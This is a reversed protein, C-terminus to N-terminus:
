QGKKAMEVLMDSYISVQEQYEQQTVKEPYGEPISARWSPKHTGMSMQHMQSLLGLLLRWAVEPFEKGIAEIAVKRKEVSGKTQPFWPLFITRLSSAPRNSWTGGPDHMALEGLTLTVRVLYQEEWALCELAWLLGTLYNRGTFADGEQSFLIDFPCPSMSLADEVAKLFEEPAAEALFPLLYDLSGWLEWDANDLIERVSLLTIVGPKDLSCHSLTGPTNGLIALSEALGRRLHNSHKMVKGHISAAFREGPVLKFQPDREKLVTVISQKFRDLHDDFIRQGLTQWLEKRKAVSWIGNKLSLPSESQLLVERIKTIWDYYDEKVLQSIIERDAKNNEDWSGLLNTMALESAFSSNQWYKETSVDPIPVFESPITEPAQKRFVTKIEDPITEMTLYSANEDIGEVLVVIQAWVQNANEASYQGILSHLLSLTIGKIDLDYILLHFSKLFRWLQDDTLEVNNNANKLLDKFVKLKDRQGLSSFNVREIRNRFDVADESYRANKLLNRVNDTDTASLPGTILSLVDTEEKFKNQKNFDDWAANIVKRFAENNNIRISHKIQGILKAETNSETNQVYVILDDTDWGRYKSQFEIKKIPWIPLCPAFGGALMLVVFSAQVYSEFHFGLGGTSAPNSLQKRKDNM